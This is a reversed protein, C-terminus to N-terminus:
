SHFPWILPILCVSVLGMLLQLPIGVKMFDSFRYGGPGSVMLNTQYGLPTSFSASAAMMVAIVFPMPDVGLTRAAAMCIPYMLVAAANNTIMETLLMTMGYAMALVLWPSGGPLTLVLHAIVSAAGTVELARGLAFSCAIVLLVQTDISKRATGLSVCGLALTAAAGLLAATIMPLWNLTAAIVVAGLIGWARLARDFRPLESNAVDSVLLFDPSHRNREVWIPRAELLLTDAPKLVVDGLGGRIRKGDRAVAVVSAGYYTHFRSERLTQNILPCRASIVVEVLKREPFQKSFSSDGPHPASLGRVRQLEVIAGVDGAFVLHDDALLRESSSVAPVIRGDRAIEVLFLTGLHRLGAEQITKGVLPGGADVTMEVTYERPNEFVSSSTKGDPLLRRGITMLYAMGILASPIGIKAIEFMGLGAHGDGSWLGNVVLNTSTGILTCTGGFIAAYSLPILLKSAPLQNRKAWALVAPLFTAVVPTNNVFASLAITPAMVRLQARAINQSRGLLAHVVLDIAGTERLGAAIVYMAAVTIMGENSFGALAQKPDLVGASLLILMALVLVLEASLKESILLGLTLALVGLTIWGELTM